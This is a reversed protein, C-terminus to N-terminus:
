SIGSQDQYQLEFLKRYIGDQAILEQHSGLEKLEGHHMVLIRDAHQITSLRHAIVISTRGTMLKEIADQILQETETDINATAEDLVLIRPDAALTRAFAILQRQGTSLKVGREGVLYDYGGPLREIFRAANVHAACAHLHEESMTEDGLSINDRISGSFLFVDQLVIGIHRRLSDQAFDKVNRGDVLVAGQQVDYFRALLNIITSKGAGTHGVIAIREGPAISFSVDKLVWEPEEYAFSVSEFAVAGEVTEPSFADQPDAIEIPEDLLKFIRESSAMAELLLNYRDALARIPGYFRESWFVYGAITGLSALQTVEEGVTIMQTGCYYIILASSFAGFFDVVPFYIAFQRVQRIWEDRHEANRARHAEDFQKERGFLQIIRMGTITEQFQSSVRAIKKRIELFSRHAYKRFLISTLLIFPLPILAILALRWNIAFMFILVVVITLLDSVVQVMGSVITQQIKEVDSTVRSILRGVPNRDLFRLSMLQLHDFLDMRMQLMTRQGVVAVILLQVYRILAEFLVLGAILLTINLLGSMDLNQLSTLAEGEMSGDRLPNNIYLDIAYMMLLPICNSTIAVVLLLAAASLFARRYPRVYRLLRRMLAGDYARRQVEDDLHYGDSM